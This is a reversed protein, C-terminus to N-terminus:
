FTNQNWMKSEGGSIFDPILVHDEENRLALVLIIM